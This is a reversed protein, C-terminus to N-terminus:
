MLRKSSFWYVLGQSIQHIEPGEALPCHRPASPDCDLRGGLEIPYLTLSKDTALCLTDDSPQSNSGRPPSSHNKQNM